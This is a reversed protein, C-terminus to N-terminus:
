FLSSFVEPWVLRVGHAECVGAWRGADPRREVALVAVVRREGRALIARYDLVQGLGLRLQKIENAATLSKIEAVYLEDGAVWALDFEPQGPGPSEPTWGHKQVADALAGETEIHATRGRDIVDPDVEFPIPGDSTGEGAQKRRYPLGVSAAALTERSAGHQPRATDDSEDPPMFGRARLDFSALPNNRYNGSRGLEGAVRDSLGGAVLLVEVFLEQQGRSLRPSRVDPFRARVDEAIQAAREVTALAAVESFQDRIDRFCRSAAAGARYVSGDDFAFLTDTNGIPSVDVIRM